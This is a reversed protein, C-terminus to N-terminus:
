TTFYYRNVILHARRLNPVIKSNSRSSYKLSKSVLINMQRAVKERELNKMLVKSEERELEDIEMGELGDECLSKKELCALTHPNILM